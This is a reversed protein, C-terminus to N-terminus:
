EDAADKHLVKTVHALIAPLSLLVARGGRRNMVEVEGSAATTTPNAWDFPDLVPLLISKASPKESEMFHIARLVSVLSKRVEAASGIGLINQRVTERREVDSIRQEVDFFYTCFGSQPRDSDDGVVALTAFTYVPMISRLVDQALSDYMEQHDKFNVVEFASESDNRRRLRTAPFIDRRLPYLHMEPFRKVAADLFELTGHPAHREAARGIHRNGFHHSLLMVHTFGDKRLRAIEELIPQPNKFDKRNEVLRSRMRQARLVIGKSSKEALYTRSMFLYGDADAHAPHSDCPRTVYTVLAVKDLSGDLTFELAQGGLLAQLAGKRKWRLASDSGERTTLGQLKVPGERALAKEVAQSVAYVATNADNADEERTLKRGSHQLRIMPITLSPKLLRIRRQLEWLTVYVVLSFAALAASRLQESRAKEAEDKLRKMQLMELDYQIEIGAGADLYTTNPIDPTWLQEAKLWRYPVYRVPLVPASVDRKMTVSVAEGMVALSREKLETKVKYSAISGPVLAGDTVTLHSFWAISDDGREAKVLIDTKASMSDVAAWDVINRHLSVTFSDVANNALNVVKNSKSKLLDILEGAIGDLAKVRAILTAHLSNLTGVPDKKLNEALKTAEAKVALPTPAELSDPVSLYLFVLEAIDKRAFIDPGPASLLKDRLRALRSEFASKGTQPNNGNVRFRYSVERVIAFGQTPETRTEFLQASGQAWVPLCNYFLAKHLHEALDSVNAQGYIASVDLPFAIGKVSGFHEYCERVRAVYAKFGPRSSQAALAEMLRMTVQLRVRALAEDELFNLFERIQSGPRNRQDRIASLTESIEDDEMGDKRLKNAIGQLLLDLGDRGDVTELATLVRGIDKSREDTRRENSAFGIPVLRAASPLNPKSENITQALVKLVHDMSEATFRTLDADGVVADVEAAIVGHLKEIAKSTAGESGQLLRGGVRATTGRPPIAMDRIFGSDEGPAFATRFIESRFLRFLVGRTNVLVKPGDVSLLPLAAQPSAPDPPISKALLAALKELQLSPTVSRASVSSGGRSPTNTM